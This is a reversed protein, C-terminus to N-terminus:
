DDGDGIDEGLRKLAARIGRRDTLVANTYVDLEARVANVARSIEERGEQARQSAVSAARAADAALDTARASRESATRIESRIGNNLIAKVEDVKQELDEFRDLGKHISWLIRAVFALLVTVGVTFGVAAEASM